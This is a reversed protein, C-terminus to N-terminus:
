MCNHWFKTMLTNLLLWVDTCRAGETWHKPQGDCVNGFFDDCVFPARCGTVEACSYWNSIGVICHHGMVPCHCSDTGSRKVVHRGCNTEFRRKSNRFLCLKGLM